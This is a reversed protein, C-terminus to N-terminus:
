VKISNQYPCQEDHFRYEQYKYEETHQCFALNDRGADCFADSQGAVFAHCIGGTETYTSLGVDFFTDGTDVPAVSKCLPLVLNDKALETLRKYWLTSVTKPPIEEVVLLLIEAGLPLAVSEDGDELEPLSGYWCVLPILFRKGKRKPEFL